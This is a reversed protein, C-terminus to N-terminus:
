RSVNPAHPAAGNLVRSYRCGCLHHSQLRQKSILVLVVLSPKPCNKFAAVPGALTQKIRFRKCIPKLYCERLCLSRAESIRFRLIGARHQAVTTPVVPFVILPKDINKEATQSTRVSEDLVQPTYLYKRRREAKSREKNRM